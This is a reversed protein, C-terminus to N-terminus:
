NAADQTAPEARLRFVKLPFLLKSAAFKEFHFGNQDSLDGQFKGGTDAGGYIVLRNRFVGVQIASAFIKRLWHHEFILVALKPESIAPM